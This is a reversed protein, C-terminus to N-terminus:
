VPAAADCRDRECRASTGRDRGHVLGDIPDSDNIESPARGAPSADVSRVSCSEQERLLRVSSGLWARVGAYTSPDSAPGGHKAACMAELRRKALQATYRDDLVTSSSLIRLVDIDDCVEILDAASLSSAGESRKWSRRLM